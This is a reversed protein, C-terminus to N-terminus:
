TGPSELTKCTRRRDRVEETGARLGKRPWRRPYDREYCKSRACVVRRGSTATCNGAGLSLMDVGLTHVQPSLYLPAQGADSHFLLRKKQTHSARSHPSIRFSVSKTIPGVSRFSSRTKEFRASCPNLPFAVAIMPSLILLPVVADKLKQLLNSLQHTNLQPQSGIRTKLILM